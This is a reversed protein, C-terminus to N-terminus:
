TTSSPTSLLWDVFSVILSVIIAAIIITVTTDTTWAPILFVGANVGAFRGGRFEYGPLLLEAGYLVAFNLVVSFLSTTLFNHPLTFFRTLPRTLWTVGGLLVALFIAAVLGGTIHFGTLMLTVVWLAAFGGVIYMGIKRM